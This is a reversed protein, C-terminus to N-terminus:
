NPDLLAAPLWEEVLDWEGHELGRSPRGQRRLRRWALLLAPLRGHTDTVWCHKLAPPPTPVARRGSEIRETM